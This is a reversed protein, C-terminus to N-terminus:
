LGTRTFEVDKKSPRGASSRQFQPADVPISLGSSSFRLPLGAPQFSSPQYQENGKLQPRTIEVNKRPAGAGPRQYGIATPPIAIPKNSAPRGIDNMSSMSASPRRSSSASSPLSSLFISAQTDIPQSAQNPDRELLDLSSFSHQRPTLMFVPPVMLPSSPVSQYSSPTSLISSASSLNPIMNRPSPKIATFQSQKPKLDNPNTDVVIPANPVPQPDKASGNVVPATKVPNMVAPLTAYINRRLPEPVNAYNRNPAELLTTTQPTTPYYTTSSISAPALSVQDNRPKKMQKMFEKGININIKSINQLRQSSSKTKITRKKTQKRKPM